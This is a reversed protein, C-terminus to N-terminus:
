QLREAVRLVASRARPNVAIEDEDARQAKGIARMTPRLGEPIIPVDKPLDRVGGARRIFQKVMRDELSHFSIVVLRGGPALCDYVGGLFRELEELEGNVAIRLAQFTRTAPHKHREKRPIAAEVLRALQGTTEPLEGAGRAAVIRSAIRRAFREEGYVKLVRALDQEDVGALWERASPGREPDMRMDLPGERLFSFGREARDLQPSSVGLDLLVGSLQGTTGEDDLWGRLEAFSGRRFRCRPDACFRRRAEAEAEPDKDVMWLRGGPGLQRLIAASHGGRGFTGDVYFGDGQVQLGELVETLM